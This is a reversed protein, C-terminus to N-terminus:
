VSVESFYILFSVSSLFVVKWNDPVLLYSDRREQCIPLDEM